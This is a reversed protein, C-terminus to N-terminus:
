GSALVITGTSIYHGTGLATLPAPCDQTLPMAVDLSNQVTQTSSPGFLRDAKHFLPIDANPLM